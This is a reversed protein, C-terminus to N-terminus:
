TTTVLWSKLSINQVYSKVIEHSMFQESKAFIRHLFPAISRHKVAISKFTQIDESLINMTSSGRPKLDREVDDGFVDYIRQGSQVRLWKGMEDTIVNIIEGEIWQRKARSYLECQNGAKWGQISDTQNDKQLNRIKPSDPPLQNTKRGYKLNVWQGEEDKFVEIVEGKIWKKTEHDYVECKQGTEWIRVPGTPKKNKRQAM